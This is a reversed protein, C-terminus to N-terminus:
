LLRCALAMLGFALVASLAVVTLSWLFPPLM